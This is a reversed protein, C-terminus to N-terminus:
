DQHSLEPVTVCRASLKEMSPVARMEIKVFAAFIALPELERSIMVILVITSVV